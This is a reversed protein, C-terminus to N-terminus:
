FLTQQDDHDTPKYIHILYGARQLDSWRIAHGRTGDANPPLLFGCGQDYAEIVDAMRATGVSLLRKDPESIYAQTVYYPTLAGPSALEARRKDVETANGYRSRVRLTFTDFARERPWQVRSALGRMHGDRGILWHDIGSRMDLERAFSNASVTEVAIIQGFTPSLEPWVVNLFDRTSRRMNDAVTTM